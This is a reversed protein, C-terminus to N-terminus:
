RDTPGQIPAARAARACELAQVAAATQRQIDLTQLLYTIHADNLPKLLNIGVWSGARWTMWFIGTVVYALLITSTVDRWELPPM